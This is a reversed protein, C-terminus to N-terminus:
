LFKVPGSAEVVLHEDKLLAFQAPDKINDYGVHRRLSRWGLLRDGGVHNKETCPVGVVM